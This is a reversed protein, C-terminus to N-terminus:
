VPLSLPWLALSRARSELGVIGGQCTGELFPRIGTSTAAAPYVRTTVATRENVFVQMVSSDYIVHFALAEVMPKGDFRGDM